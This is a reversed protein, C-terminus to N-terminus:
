ERDWGQAVPGVSARHQGDSTSAVTFRRRAAAELRGGDGRRVPSDREVKVQGTREGDDRPAQAAVAAVGLGSTLGRWGPTGCAHHGRRARARGRRSARTSWATTGNTWASPWFGHAVTRGVVIHGPNLIKIKMENLIGSIRIFEFTCLFYLLGWFFVFYIEISYKLISIPKLSSLLWNLVNNGEEIKSFVQAGALQDFLIDIRPLPYKNKMTVANLPRYDVCLCL